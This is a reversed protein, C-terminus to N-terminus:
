CGLRTSARCGASIDSTSLSLNAAIRVFPRVRVVEREGVQVTTSVRMCRASGFPDRRRDAAPRDQPDGSQARGDCSSRLAEVREPIAAFFAEGDLAVYVAGGMLAAGCLGNLITGAYWRM